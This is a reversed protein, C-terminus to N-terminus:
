MSTPIILEPGSCMLSNDEHPAGNCCNGGTMSLCPPLQPKTSTNYIFCGRLTARGLASQCWTTMYAVELLGFIFCFFLPHTGGPFFGLPAGPLPLSPPSAKPKCLPNPTNEDFLFGTWARGVRGRGVFLIPRASRTSGGRRATCQRPLPTYLSLM